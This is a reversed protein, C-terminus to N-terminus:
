RKLIKKKARRIELSKFYSSIFPEVTRCKVTKSHFYTNTTGSTSVPPLVLRKKVQAEADQESTFIDLQPCFPHLQHNSFATTAFPANQFVGTLFAMM